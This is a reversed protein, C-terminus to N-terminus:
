ACRHRLLQGTDPFVALRILATQTVVCKGEMVCCSVGVVHAWLASRWYM